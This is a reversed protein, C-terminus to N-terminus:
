ADASREEILCTIEFDSVDKGADKRTTVYKTKVNKFLKSRDLESVFSFVSAMTTSTGKITFRTGEDYRVDLIRVDDPLTEYVESLAELSAGRKELYDKVVQTKAYMRELDKADERMPQFRATIKQLYTKRFYLKSMFTVFLVLLLVLALVGTTLMERGRHELQIKLKKEESTLDLKVHDFLLLPAITNFYSLKKTGSAATKAAASIQFHNYYTQRKIPVHFAQEFVDDLENAAGLVGTLILLRPSPGIEDGMYSELSKALEDSFRDIYADREELLQTAGMLIGRVFLLKTKQCVMFSTFGADMHVIAVVSDDSSNIKACAQCVAEPPFFVRELTLGLKEIMQIQRTIAEKPVIVLLVKTYSERVVGLILMDIVIESRSYPTHRSAQLNVIERIEDPDRSPIEISRTIVLHLPVSIFARPSKLGFAALAQRMLTVIDDDSLGRVEHSALNAVERGRIRHFHVHTMKLYDEDLDIAFLDPNQKSKFIKVPPFAM